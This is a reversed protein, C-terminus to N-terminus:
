KNEAKINAQNNRKESVTCQGLKNIFKKQRYNTKKPKADSKGFKQGNYGLRRVFFSNYKLKLEVEM